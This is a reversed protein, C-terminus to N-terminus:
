LSIASRRVGCLPASMLAVGDFAAEDRRLTWEKEAGGDAFDFVHGDFREQARARAFPKGEVSYSGARWRRDGDPPSSTSGLRYFAIANDRFLKRRSGVHRQRHDQRRSRGCDPYTGALELVHWDGGFMGQRLRLGRHRARYLPPNHALTSAKPDAEPQRGLDAIVDPLLSLERLDPRWSGDGAKIPSSAWHSELFLRVERCQEVM